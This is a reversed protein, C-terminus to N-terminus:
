HETGIGNSVEAKAIFEEKEPEVETGPPVEGTTKFHKKLEDLAPEEKIRLLGSEVPQSRAWNLLAERDKVALKEPVKRWGLSGHLLARSKKKGGGLLDAKAFTAYAELRSAFFRIGREIRANLAELKVDIRAKALAAVEENERRERELAGLRSLAWDAHDLTKVEWTPGVAPDEADEYLVDPDTTSM